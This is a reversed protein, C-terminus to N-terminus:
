SSFFYSKSTIAGNLDNVIFSSLKKTECFHSLSPLIISIISLFIKAFTVTTVAENIKGFDSQYKAIQETGSISFGYEVIMQFILVFSMSFGVLGFKEVGLVRSLYPFLMLGLFYNSFTLIYLFLTNKAIKNKM